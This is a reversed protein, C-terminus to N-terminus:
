HTAVMGAGHKLVGVSKQPVCRAFGHKAVNYRERLNGLWAAEHLFVGCLSLESVITIWDSPAVVLIRIKYDM